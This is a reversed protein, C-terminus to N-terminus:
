RRVVEPHELHSYIAHLDPSSVEVKKLDNALERNKFIDRDVFLKKIIQKSLDNINEEFDKEDM